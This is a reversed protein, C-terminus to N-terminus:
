ENDSGRKKKAAAIMEEIKELDAQSFDEAEDILYSVMDLPKVGLLRSQLRELLSRPNEQNKLLWYEYRLGVRERNLLKKDALRAMVTMVTTYKDKGGLMGQVHRVTM